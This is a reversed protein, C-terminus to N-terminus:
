ILYFENALDKIRQLSRPNVTFSDKAAIMHTKREHLDVMLKILEDVSKTSLHRGKKYLIHSAPGLRAARRDDATLFQVELGISSLNDNPTTVFTIRAAQFSNEGSNRVEAEIKNEELFAQMQKTWTAGGQVVVARAKGLAPQLTFQSSQKIKASLQLFHQKLDSDDKSIVTYALMDPPTNEFYASNKYIKDALSGISKIRYVGAMAISSDPLKLVFDGYNVIDDGNLRRGAMQELLFKDDVDGDINGLVALLSNAGYDKALQHLYRARDLVDTKNMKQYRIQLAMDNLASAFGDLGITECIPAYFYEAEAVKHFIEAESRGYYHQMDDLLQAAKIMVSELNVQELVDKMRNVEIKKARVDWDTAEFGNQYDNKIKRDLKVRDDNVANYNDLNARYANAENDMFNLDGLIALVYDTKESSLGPSSLYDLCMQRRAKIRSAQENKFDLAATTEYLAMADYVSAPLLEVGFAQMIDTIREIRQKIRDVDGIELCNQRYAEIANKGLLSLFAGNLALNEGSDPQCEFSQRSM